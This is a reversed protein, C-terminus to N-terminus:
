AAYPLWRHLSFETMVKSFAELAFGVIVRYAICRDVNCRNVYGLEPYWLNSM